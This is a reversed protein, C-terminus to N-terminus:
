AGLSAAIVEELTLRRREYSRRVNESTTVYELNGLRNDGRDGNKHDIDQGIPRPGVFAALVLAHVFPNWELRNRTLRVRLYGDRNYRQCLVRGPPRRGKGRGITRVRGQHSVEYLDEWGTIPRWEERM